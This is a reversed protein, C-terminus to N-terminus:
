AAGAKDRDPRLLKIGKLRDICTITWPNEGSMVYVRRKSFGLPKRRGFAGGPAGIMAM